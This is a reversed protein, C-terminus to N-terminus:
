SEQPESKDELNFLIQSSREVLEKDAQRSNSYELIVDLSDQSRLKWDTESVMNKVAILCRAQVRRGGQKEEIMREVRVMTDELEPKLLLEQGLKQDSLNVVIKMLSSGFFDDGDSLDCSSATQFFSMYSAQTDPKYNASFNAICDTLSKLMADSETSNILFANAIDVLKPVLVKASDQGTKCSSINQIIRVAFMRVNESQHTICKLILSARNQKAIHILQAQDSTRFLIDQLLQVVEPIKRFQLMQELLNFISGIASRIEEDEDEEDDYYDSEEDEEDYESEPEIEIEAPKEDISITECRSDDDKDNESNQRIKWVLAGFIAGIIGTILLGAKPVNANM